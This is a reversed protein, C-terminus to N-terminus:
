RPTMYDEDQLHISVKVLLQNHHEDDLGTSFRNKITPEETEDPTRRGAFSTCSKQLMFQKVKGMHEM